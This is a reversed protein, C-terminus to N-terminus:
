NSLSETLLVCVLLSMILIISKAPIMQDTVGENFLVDNLVCKRHHYKRLLPAVILPIAIENVNM